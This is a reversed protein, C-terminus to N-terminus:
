SRTADCSSNLSKLSSTLRLRDDPTSPSASSTFARLCSRSSKRCCFRTAKVSAAALSSAKAAVILSFSSDFFSDSTSISRSRLSTSAKRCCARENLSADADLAASLSRWTVSVTSRSCRRLVRSPSTPRNRTAAASRAANSTSTWRSRPSCAANSLSLDDFSLSDLSLANDASSAALSSSTSTSRSLAAAADTSSKSARVSCRCRSSAWRFAVSLSRLLSTSRSRSSARPTSLSSLARNLLSAVSRIWASRSRALFFSSRSCSANRSRRATSSALSASLSARASASSRRRPVDSSERM